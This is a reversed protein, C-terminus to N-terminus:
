LNNPGGPVPLHLMFTLGDVSGWGVDDSFGPGAKYGAGAPEYDLDSNDGVTIAHFDGATYPNQGSLFQHYLTTASRGFRHGYYSDIEAYLAALNPAVLSTGGVVLLPTGAYYLDYPTNVDAVLSIDPANRYAQSVTGPLNRQWPPLAFYVSVGGGGAGNACPDSGVGTGSTSGTACSWGTEHDISHDAKVYLSTGGSSGVEPSSAPFDVYNIATTARCDQAGTDGAAAFMTQGEASGQTFLDDAAAAESATTNMECSGFSTTVTDVTPDNVVANYMDELMLVLAAPATYAEITAGPAQASTQEIDATIEDSADANFPAPGDPYVGVIAATRNIGYHALYTDIDSPTYGYAAEIAITAGTGTVTPMTHIPYDYAAQIDPPGFGSFPIAAAIPQPVPNLSPQPIPTPAAIVRGEAPRVRLRPELRVRLHPEFRAIDDFGSVHMVIGRLAPPMIAPTLNAYHERGEYAVRAIRVGFMADVAAATGSVNVMKRNPWTRTVHIGGSELTAIVRRYTTESPAFAATFQRPTLFRGYEPSRPNSVVDVFDHVARPNPYAMHVNLTIRHEASLAGLVRAFRLQRPMEAAVRVDLPRVLREAADARAPAGATMAGATIVIAAIVRAFPASNM